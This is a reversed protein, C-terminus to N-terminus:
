LFPILNGFAEIIRKMEKITLYRLESDANDWNSRGGWRTSGKYYLIGDEGLGWTWSIKSEDLVVYDIGSFEKKLYLIRWETGDLEKVINM